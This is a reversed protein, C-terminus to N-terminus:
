KKIGPSFWEERSGRGPPAYRRSAPRSGSHPLRDAVEMETGGPEISDYAELLRASALGAGFEYHALENANVIHRVGSLPHLFIGGAHVTEGHINIERVADMLFAPIDFLKNKEERREEKKQYVIKGTSSFGNEEM